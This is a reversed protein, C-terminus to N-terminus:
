RPKGAPQRDAGLLEDLTQADKSRLAPHRPNGPTEDPDAEAASRVGERALRERLVAMEIELDSRDGELLQRSRAVFDKELDALFNEYAARAEADQSRAYLDAFKITADRAGMLYVGMYRRAATLDGPDQRVQDFLELVTAEFVAVRAVLDRDGSRQIATKMQELYGQGEDIMRSVRQQQFSDIGDMGKDRMPDPGFALWHLALGAVSIAAAGVVTGPEAAGLGLGLAALVGGFLKRPIAPRRATRRIDYAAEAVLGERTLWMGAAIMGFGALDGFMELPPQFFATLLFPTAALTVWKPRGSLRHRLDTKLPVSGQDPGVPDPSHRGGYRQSM